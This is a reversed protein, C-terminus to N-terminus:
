RDDRYAGYFNTALENIFAIREHYEVWNEGKRKLYRSDRDPQPREVRETIPQSNM